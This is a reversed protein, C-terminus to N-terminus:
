LDPLGTKRQVEKLRFLQQYPQRDNGSRPGEKLPQRNGLLPTRGVYEADCLDCKYNYVVCQQSIIPWKQTRM